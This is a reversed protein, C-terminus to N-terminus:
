ISQPGALYRWTGACAMPALQWQGAHEVIWATAASTRHNSEVGAKKYNQILSGEQLVEQVQTPLRQQAAQFSKRHLSLELLEEGQGGSERNRRNERLQAISAAYDDATQRLQPWKSGRVTPAGMTCLFKTWRLLVLYGKAHKVEMLFNSVMWPWHPYHGPLTTNWHAQLGGRLRTHQVRQIM